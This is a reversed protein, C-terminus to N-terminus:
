VSSGLSLVLSSRAQPGVLRVSADNTCLSPARHPLPSFASFVPCKQAQASVGPWSLPSFLACSTPLHGLCDVGKDTCRHVEGPFKHYFSGSFHIELIYGPCPRSSRMGGWGVVGCRLGSGGKSRVRTGVKEGWAGHRRLRTCTPPCALTWPCSLYSRGVLTQRSERHWVNM